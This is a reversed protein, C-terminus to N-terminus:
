EHLFYEDNCGDSGGDSAKASSQATNCGGLQSCLSDFTGNFFTAECRM